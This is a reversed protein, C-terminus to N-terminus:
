FKVLFKSYFILVLILDTFYYMTTVTYNGVDEIIRKDEDIISISLIKLNNFGNMEKHCYIGDIKIDKTIINKFINEPLNINYEESDPEDKFSFRLKRKIPCCYKVIDIPSLSLISNFKRKFKTHIENLEIYLVPVKNEKIISINKITYKNM